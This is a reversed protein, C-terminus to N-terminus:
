AAIHQRNAELYRKIQMGRGNLELGTPTYGRRILDGLHADRLAYLTKVTSVDRRAIHGAPNAALIATRQADSLKRAEADLVLLATAAAILDAAPAIVGRTAPIEDLAQAITQRNFQRWLDNGRKAAAAYSPESASLERVERNTGPHCVAVLYRGEPGECRTIVVTAHTAHGVKRQIEAM